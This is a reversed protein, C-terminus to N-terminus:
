DNFLPSAALGPVVKLTPVIERADFSLLREKGVFYSHYDAVALNYTVAKEADELKAIEISGSATRIYMGTQLDKTKTWGKGVVWWYHGLTSQIKEDTVLVINCTISPPRQTTRVVPKLSIEGTEIDQSVVNDGIQISEIPRMGMETQIMTGATLCECRRGTQPDPNETSGTTEFVRAQEPNVAYVLSQYNRDYNRLIEKNGINLIEQELDWWNWWQSPTDDLKEGTASRLVTCVNRQVQRTSENEQTLRAEQAEADRRAENQAVANAVNNESAVLTSATNAPRPFSSALQMNAAFIAANANNIKLVKDLQATEVHSKLERVELLQLVLDGNPEVVLKRRLDKETSMFDLLPPVYMEKPFRALASAAEQGLETSPAKVAISALAMCAEKTRFRKITNLLHLATQTEAREAAFQLAKVAKPDKIAKLQQISKLRKATDSSEIGSVIDRIKPLWTKLAKIQEQASMRTAAIEEQSFWRGEIQTFKLSQRAEADNSDTDLVGFWHAEAQDPMKNTVCWKAMRRHGDKDLPGDGREALYRQMEKPLQNQELESLNQWEGNVEIEGAQWRLLKDKMDRAPTDASKPQLAASRDIAQGEAEARLVHILSTSDSNPNGETTEAGFCIGPLPYLLSLSLSLRFLAKM